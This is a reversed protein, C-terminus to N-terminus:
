HEDFLISCFSSFNFRIDISKKWMMLTTLYDQRFLYLWAINDFMTSLLQPLRHWSPPEQITLEAADLFHKLSQQFDGDKMLRLASQYFYDIRQISPPNECQELQNKCIELLEPTDFTSIELHYQSRDITQTQKQYCLIKEEDGNQGYIVILNHYINTLSPIDEGNAMSLAQEFCSLAIDFSKLKMWVDGIHNYLECILLNTEDLLSLAIAYHFFANSYDSLHFYLYGLIIHLVKTIPDDVITLVEEYLEIAKEYLGFNSFFFALHIYLIVSPNRYSILLQNTLRHYYNVIMRYDDTKMFLDHRHHFHDLHELFNGILKQLHESIHNQLTLHVIWISDTEKDISDISFVSGLFFLIERETSFSSFMSLDVFPKFSSHIEEPIHIHFVVAQSSGYVFTRAISEDHSTSFFTNISIMNGLNNQLTQLTMEELIQGRYVISPNHAQENSLNQFKEYLLILFYRFKCILPLNQTRFAKNLLRYLFSNKTYWNFVNALSCNENFEHIKELERPDNEYELRCQELMEQKLDNMDGHPFKTLYYVLMQNWFLTMSNGQLNTFSEEISIENISSIKLPLDHRYTLLIDKRLRTILQDLDTFLGIIKSSSKKEHQNLSSENLFIYISHIQRCHDFYVSSEFDTLILLIKRESKMENIYNLANEQSHYTKLYHSFHQFEDPPDDSSVWMVIFDDHNQFQDLKTLSLDFKIM